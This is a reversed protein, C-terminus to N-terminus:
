SRDCITQNRKKGNKMVKEAKGVEYYVNEIKNNLANFQADEIAEPIVEMGYVKDVKDALSLGITGIGSYADIM